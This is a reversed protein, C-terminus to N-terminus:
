SLCRAQAMSERLAEAFMGALTAVKGPDAESDTLSFTGDRVEGTALMDRPWDVCNVDGPRARMYDSTKHRGHLTAYPDDESFPTGQATLRDQLAKRFFADDQTPEDGKGTIFCVPIVPGRGEGVNTRVELFRVLNEPKSLDLDHVSRDSENFPETSHALTVKVGPKLRALIEDVAALSRIHRDMLEDRVEQPAKAVINRLAAAPTRNPDIWGRNVNFSVALTGPVQALLENRLEPIGLDREVALYRRIAEGDHRELFEQLGQVPPITLSGHPDIILHDVRSLDLTKLNAHQISHRVDILGEREAHHDLFSIGM